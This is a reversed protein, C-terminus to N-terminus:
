VLLNLKRYIHIIIEHIYKEFSNLDKPQLFFAENENKHGMNIKTQSLAIKQHPVQSIYLVKFKGVPLPNIFDYYLYRLIKHKSGPINIKIRSIVNFNM